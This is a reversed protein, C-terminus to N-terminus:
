CTHEFCSAFIRPENLRCTVLFDPRLLECERLNEWTFHNNNKTFFPHNKIENVDVRGLRRERTTLLNRILAICSPSMVVDDPFDLTKEHDMINSYTGVLSESFFPCEGVQSLVNRYM